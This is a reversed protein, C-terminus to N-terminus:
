QRAVMATTGNWPMNGLMSVNGSSTNVTWLADAQVAYLIGNRATMAATGAWGDPYASFPSVAGTDVPVRWLTGAQVAYISGGTAAMAETNAWGDPYNSFPTVRGTNVNVRWLTGAQVAYISDGVAAMAETNAWGDPYDSFPVVTGTSADVRWLTGESVIYLYGALATMANTQPWTASSNVKTFIILSASTDFTWLPSYADNNNFVTYGRGNISAMAASDYVFSKVVYGTGTASDIAFIQDARSIYIDNATPFSSEQTTAQEPALEGCGTLCAVAILTSQVLLPSRTM